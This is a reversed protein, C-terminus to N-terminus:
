GSTKMNCLPQRPVMIVSAMKQLVVKVSQSELIEQQKSTRGQMTLPQKLLMLRGDASGKKNMDLKLEKYLGRHSHLDMLHLVLSCSALEGTISARLLPATGHRGARGAALATSFVPRPTSPGRRTLGTM